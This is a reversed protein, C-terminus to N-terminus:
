QQRQPNSPPTTLVSMIEHAQKFQYEDRARYALRARSARPRITMLLLRGSMAQCPTSREM